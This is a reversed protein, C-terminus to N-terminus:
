WRTEFFGFHQPQTVPIPQHRLHARTVKRKPQLKREKKKPERERAQKLSPPVLQALKSPYTCEASHINAADSGLGGANVSPVIVPQNTDIVV